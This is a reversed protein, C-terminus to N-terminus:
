RRALRPPSLRRWPPRSVLGSSRGPQVWRSPLTSRGRRAGHGGGETGQVVTVDAGVNVAQRAEELDTVQLVLAVGARRIPEVFASPDGFSLM